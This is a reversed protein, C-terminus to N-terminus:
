ASGEGSAEDTVVETAEEHLTLWLEEVLEAHRRQSFGTYATVAALM